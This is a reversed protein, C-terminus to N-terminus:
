SGPGDHSEDYGLDGDQDAPRGSGRVTPPRRSAVPIRLAEDVEHVLDYSYDDSPEPETTM